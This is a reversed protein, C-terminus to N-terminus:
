PSLLTASWTAIGHRHRLSTSSALQRLPRQLASASPMHVPPRHWLRRHSAALMGFRHAQGAPSVKGPLHDAQTMLTHCVHSACQREHKSGSIYGGLVGGLVAAIFGVICAAIIIWILAVGCFKTRRKERWTKEKWSKQTWDTDESDVREMLPLSAHGDRIRDVTSHRNLISQDTMSQRVRPQAEEHPPPAVPQHMLPMGPDTGAVPGQTHLQGPVAVLPMKPGDEPYRSYPPLQETHGDVGIIDQEEGDPGRIRQYAQGGLGPFGLPVPVHSEPEPEDMLDEEGLGQPYLAYPHQPGQRVSSNRNPARVTSSTAVSPSRPVTGQPYMAYPHSPGGAGFRPSHTGAFNQSSASSTSRRAIGPAYSATSQSHMSPTREFELRPEDEPSAFPNDYTRSKRMSDRSRTTSITTLAPNTAYHASVSRIPPDQSHHEDGERQQEADGGPRFGDAVMDFGDVAFEDDFVNPNEQTPTM